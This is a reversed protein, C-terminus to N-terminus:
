EGLDEGNWCQQMATIGHDEMAEGCQLISSLSTEHVIDTTGDTYDVLYWELTNNILAERREKSTWETTKM